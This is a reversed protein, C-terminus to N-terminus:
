KPSPSELQKLIAITTAQGVLVIVRHQLIPEVYVTNGTIQDLLVM